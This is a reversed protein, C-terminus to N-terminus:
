HESPATAPPAPAANNVFDKKSGDWMLLNTPATTKAHDHFNHCTVCNARAGRGASNTPHHCDACSATGSEQQWILNPSLVDTTLVSTKAPLHCSLCTLNQHPRHDFASHTFWRRPSSTVLTPVTSLWSMKAGGMSTAPPTAAVAAPEAAPSTSPMTQALDHMDHCKVCTQPVGFAIFLPLIRPDGTVPKNDDPQIM